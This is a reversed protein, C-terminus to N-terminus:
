DTRFINSERGKKIYDDRLPSSEAARKAAKFIANEKVSLPEVNKGDRKYECYKAVRKKAAIYEVKDMNVKPNDLGGDLYFGLVLLYDNLTYPESEEKIVRKVIRILDSETLRIVKKM